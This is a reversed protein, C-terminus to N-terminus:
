IEKESIIAQIEDLASNYGMLKWFVYDSGQTPIKKEKMWEVRKLLEAKYDELVQKFFSKLNNEQEISWVANRTGDGFPYIFKADFEEEWSEKETEKTLPQHCLCNENNCQYENKEKYDLYIECKECCGKELPQDKLPSLKSLWFNAVERTSIGDIGLDDGLPYSAPFDTIFKDFEERLEKETNTM